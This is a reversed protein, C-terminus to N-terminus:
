LVKKENQKSKRQSYVNEGNAGNPKKMKKNKPRYAEPLM